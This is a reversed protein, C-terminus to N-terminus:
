ADHQWSKWLPMLAATAEEFRSRREVWYSLGGAHPRHHREVSVHKFADSFHAFHGVGTSAMAAAGFCGTEDNAVVEIDLNLAQSVMESYFSSNAIGGGLRAVDGWELCRSLERTHWVHMWAIGELTARLLHAPTHWNRLGVFTGSPAEGFPSAFLFPTLIPLDHSLPLRRAQEFLEDRHGATTAGCTFLFWELTTSATASTSMAMRLGPEVSLRNQWSRHTAPAQTAVANISFSGAILSLMNARLSGMGVASAHVDHSGAVVPTGARLGTESAADVSIRGVVETSSHLQPMLHSAHDLGYASLLEDSWTSTQTNLFSASADSFDTGIHGTLRLRLVDKCALMAHAGSIREPHNRATWALIVGPSGLFPVQGSLRLITASRDDDDLIEGMERWARSDVAMIAPGVEAGAKDVLHLGDGHGTIGIAAIASADLTGQELAGRIATRAALWLDQHSREVYRPAPTRNPSAAKAASIRKMNEDHVVAKVVTQGADIGLFYPGLGMFKAERRMGSLLM